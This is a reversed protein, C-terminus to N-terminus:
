RRRRPPPMPPPSEPHRVRPRLRCRRPPRLWPSPAALDTSYESPDPSRVAAGPATRAQGAQLCLRHQEAAGSRPAASWPGAVYGLGVLGVLGATALQRGTLFGALVPREVLWYSLEALALSVGIRAALLGLGTLGTRGATLYLIVPWHWLYLGYSIRGIHALPPVGLLRSLPGKPARILAALLLAVVLAM